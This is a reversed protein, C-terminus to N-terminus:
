ALFKVTIGASVTCDDVVERMDRMVVRSVARLGSASALPVICQHAATSGMNTPHLESVHNLVFGELIHLKFRCLCAGVGEKIPLNRVCLIGGDVM